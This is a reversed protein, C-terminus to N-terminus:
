ASRSSRKLVLRAKSKLTSLISGVREIADMEADEEPTLTGARAKASLERMRAVESQPFSLGLIARAVRPPLEREPHLIRLWIEAETRPTFTATKMISM